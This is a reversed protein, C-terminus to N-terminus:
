KVVLFKKTEKGLRLFYIGPSIGKLSIEVTEDNRDAKPPSAIERIMKGSVDFIKITKPDASYPLRIALYSRAPNPYVELTFRKADFPQNNEEIGPYPPLKGWIRYSNAPHNNIQETWKSYAILIQNGSGRALAPYCPYSIQTTIPFSDIIVGSPSVKAGYLAYRSRYDEWVVLYDSGDFAIASNIQSNIATSIPIGNPDLVIGAQTVRSCYIDPNRSGNRYDQWVVLYNTGDFAISPCEQQSNTITSIPIGNPDLVTGTPTVRAGYIDNYINGRDWVVLYNTGDFAISPHQALNSVNTIRIGNPDLVTGQQNVRAGFINGGYTNGSSWVVLYNIGDFAVSPFLQDGSATSIAFGNSDLVIGQQNIRAGYIDWQNGSRYDQWVVLYDIGNFAVSPYRQENTTMSIPIGSQGQIVGTQDVLSGSIDIPNGRRDEWVVLYNTGDFAVAPNWQSNAAASIPIGTDLVVMSPTVRAGYIDSPNNRVDRWVVLHNTGDFAVSQERKDTFNSSAFSSIRLGTDLVTGASTVRSGYLISTEEIWIVFYNTGDYAVFPDFDGTHNSISINMTDLVVGDPTVRAGYIKGDGYIGATWVVLFNTGDSAISPGHENPARATSIQIVSTDLVTGAPSVRVGWIEGERWAVLYNTGNFAVYPYRQTGEKHYIPLGTPDLVTGAQSVRAGYIDYSSDSRDDSWVVLYNTGDFAISPFEQSYPATSILIGATDLVTGFQSVRSGYIDCHNASNRFDLWVVMYNTGDFAIAPYGQAGNATSIPFGAFDLITGDPTVRTGYIDANGNSRVDAWVVLYNTGDFAINPYSQAGLAGVYVINTDILFEGTLEPTLPCPNPPLSQRHSVGNIVENVDFPVDKIQTSAPFGFALSIVFIISVFKPVM